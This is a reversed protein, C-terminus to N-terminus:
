DAFAPVGEKLYQHMALGLPKAAKQSLEAESGDDMYVKGMKGSYNDVHKLNVIYSINVKFFSRGRLEKELVKFTKKVLYDEDRTHIVIGRGDPNSRFYLVDGYRIKKEGDRYLVTFEEGKLRALEEKTSLYSEELKNALISKTLYRFVGHEYGEYSYEPHVTTFVVIPVEGGDNRKKQYFKAVRRGDIEDMEIDLYVLEFRERSALLERGNAFEHVDCEEGFDLLMRILLGKFEDRFVEDDDCIAIRM